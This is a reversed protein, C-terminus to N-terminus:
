IFRTQKQSNHNSHSSITMPSPILYNESQLIHHLPPRSLLCNPPIRLHIPFHDSNLNQTLNTYSSYSTLHADVKLFFGDILSTHSYNEGGQRTYTTSTPIYTLHLNSLFHCWHLDLPSPPIHTSNDHRGILAINRNFDGLLLIYQLYFNSKLSFYYIKKMVLCTYISFYSPNSLYTIYTYSKSTHPYNHQLPSKPLITHSHIHTISLLLFAKGPHPICPIVMRRM